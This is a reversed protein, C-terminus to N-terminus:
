LAINKSLGANEIGLSLPEFLTPLPGAPTNFSKSIEFECFHSDGEGEGGHMYIYLVFVMVDHQLTDYLTGWM